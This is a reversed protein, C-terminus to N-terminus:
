IYRKHRFSVSSITALPSNVAELFQRIEIDLLPLSLTQNYLRNFRM